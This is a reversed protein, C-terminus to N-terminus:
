LRSTALRVAARQDPILGRTSFPPPALRSFSARSFTPCRSISVQKAFAIIGILYLGFGTPSGNDFLDLDDSSALLSEVKVLGVRKNARGLGVEGDLKFWDTSSLLENGDNTGFGSLFRSKAESSISHSCHFSL